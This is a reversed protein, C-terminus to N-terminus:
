LDVTASCPDTLHKGTTEEQADAPHTALSFVAAIFSTRARVKLWRVFRARLSIRVHFAQTSDVLGSEVAGGTGRRELSVAKRVTVWKKREMFIAGTRAGLYYRPAAPDEFTFSSWNCWYRVEVTAVGMPQAEKVIKTSNSAAMRAMCTEAEVDHLVFSVNGGRQGPCGTSWTSPWEKGTDWLFPAGTTGVKARWREPACCPLSANSPDACAPTPTPVDFHWEKPLTFLPGCPAPSLKARINSKGGVLVLRRRRWGGRRWYWQLSDLTYVGSFNNAAAPLVASFETHEQEPGYEHLTLFDYPTQCQIYTPSWFVHVSAGDKPRHLPWVGL